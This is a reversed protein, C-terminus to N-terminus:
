FGSQLSRQVVSVSTGSSSLGHAKVFAQLIGCIGCAAGLVWCLWFIFFFSFFGSGLEPFITRPVCGGIRKTHQGFCNSNKQGLLRDGNIPRDQLLSYSEAVTVKPTETKGEARNFPRCLRQVCASGAPTAARSRVQLTVQSM